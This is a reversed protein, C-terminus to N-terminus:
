PILEGFPKLIRDSVRDSLLRIKEKRDLKQMLSQGNISSFKMDNEEDIESNSGVKVDLTPASAGSVVEVVAPACVVMKAGAAVDREEAKETEEGTITTGTVDDILGATTGAAGRWGNRGPFGVSSIGLEIGVKSRVGKRDGEELLELVPM